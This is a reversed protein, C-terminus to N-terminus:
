LQHPISSYSLIWGTCGFCLTSGGRTLGSMVTPIKTESKMHKYYHIHLIQLIYPIGTILQRDWHGRPRLRSDEAVRKSPNYSRIRDKTLRTHQWLSVEVVPQDSTCLLGESHAKDSYSRLGRYHPARPGSPTAASQFFTITLSMSYLEEQFGSSNVAPWCYLYKRWAILIKMVSGLTAM